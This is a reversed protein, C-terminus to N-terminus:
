FCVQIGRKSRAWRWLERRARITAPTAVIANERTTEMAGAMASVDGGDLNVVGCGGEFGGFM